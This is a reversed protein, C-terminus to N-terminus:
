RQRGAVEQTTEFQIHWCYYVLEKVTGLAGGYAVALVKMSNKLCLLSHTVFTAYLLLRMFIIFDTIM